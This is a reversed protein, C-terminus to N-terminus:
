CYELSYILIGKVPKDNELCYLKDINEITKYNKKHIVNNMLSLILKSRELQWEKTSNEIIRTYSTELIAILMNLLVIISLIIYLRYIYSIIVPYHSTEILALMEINDLVMDVSSLIGQLPNSFQPINYMLTFFSQSFGIIFISFIGMFYFIDYMMTFLARIYPGIKRFGRLLKLFKIFFIPYLISIIIKENEHRSIKLGIVLYVLIIQITDLINWGDLLYNKLNKKKSLKTLEYIENVLFLTNLGFLGCDFITYLIRYETFSSVSVTINSTSNSIPTNFYISNYTYLTSSITFFLLYLISIIFQRIFFSRAFTIWYYDMLTIFWPHSVIEIDGKTIFKSIDQDTIEEYNYEVLIKKTKSTKSLLSLHTDKISGLKNIKKNTKISNPVVKSRPYHKKQKTHNNIIVLQQEKNIDIDEEKIIKINKKLKSSVRSIIVIKKDLLKDIASKMYKFMLKYPSLGDLNVIHLNCEKKIFLEVVNVHGNLIAYHIPTNGGLNQQNINAGLEILQSCIDYYGYSAAEHLATLNDHNELHIISLLKKGWRKILKDLREDEGHQAILHLITNGEDYIHSIDTENLIKKLKLSKM